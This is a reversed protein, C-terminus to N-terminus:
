LRPMRFPLMAQVWPSTFRRMVLSEHMAIARNGAIDAEIVSRAYFPTDELTQTVTPNVASIRRPVRWLTKPLEVRPPPEIDTVGGAADYRMGLTRPGDTRDIDYLM